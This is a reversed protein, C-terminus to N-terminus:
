KCVEEGCRFEYFQQQRADEYGADIYDYKLELSEESPIVHELNAPSDSPRLYSWLKTADVDNYRCGLRGAARRKLIQFCADHFPLFNMDETWSKSSYVVRFEPVGGPSVLLEQETPFNPDNGREDAFFVGRDDCTGLGSIFCTASKENLGVIRIHDLWAM